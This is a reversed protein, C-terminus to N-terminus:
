GGEHAVWPPLKCFHSEYADWQIDHGRGLAWGGSSTGPSCEAEAGQETGWGVGLWSVSSLLAQGPKWPFKSGLTMELPM